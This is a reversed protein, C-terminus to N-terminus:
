SEGRQKELQWAQELLMVADAAKADMHWLGGGGCEKWYRFQELYYLSQGTIVSKPCNTSYVGGRAWVARPRAPREMESWACNRAKM